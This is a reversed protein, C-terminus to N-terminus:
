LSELAHLQKIQLRYRTVKLKEEVFKVDRVIGLDLVNLVPVEPDPVEKLFSYIQNISTTM